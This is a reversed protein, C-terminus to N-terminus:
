LAKKTVIRHVMHDATVCVGYRTDVVFEYGVRTNAPQISPTPGWWVALGLGSQGGPEDAGVFMGAVDSAGDDPQDGLWIEVNGWNGQYSSNVRGTFVDLGAGMLLGGNGSSRISKRLHMIQNSSLVAVNRARGPNL